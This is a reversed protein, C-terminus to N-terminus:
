AGVGDNKWLEVFHNEQRIEELIDRITRKQENQRRVTELARDAEAHAEDLAADAKATAAQELKTQEPPSDKRWWAM